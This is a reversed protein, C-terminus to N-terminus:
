AGPPEGDFNFRTVILTRVGIRFVDGSVDHDREALSGIFMARDLLPPLFPILSDEIPIQM